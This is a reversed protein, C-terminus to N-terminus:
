IPHSYVEVVLCKEQLIKWRNVNVNMSQIAFSVGFFTHINYFRHSPVQVFQAFFGIPLRRCCSPVIGNEM